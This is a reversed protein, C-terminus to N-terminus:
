WYYQLAKAFPSNPYNKKLQMFWAKRQSQPVDKGGCSSTGSPAYCMVARYLAYAKDDAPTKAGAILSQYVTMRSYVPGKFLTPTAGLVDGTPPTDLTEYDFGNALFFDALCLQAKSDKPARALRTAIDKLPKCDYDGATTRTFVGLPPASNDAWEPLSANGETSADAPVLALDKLFDATHGRSLEKYLLTYLASNREGQPNATDTAQRRLLAADAINSLLINRIQPNSVGSDAAFVKEVAHAREHHLAIALEVAGRQLPRQAGPLIATWHDSASKDKLAELAMGRLMQRSFELNTFSSQSAADPIAQVVAEPKHEYYFDYLALIYDFLAGDNSFSRRQQELSVRAIKPLCPEQDGHGCRLLALDVVAMLIPSKGYRAADAIFLDPAPQAFLLKNDVEDAYAIDETSTTPLAAAYTEALKDTRGGLWYVRRLLGRASAAYLGQPYAQLYANLAAEAADTVKPEAFKGATMSGYEDFLGVQQRNVEVRGLMYRATESLWPQDVGILTNFQATAADFDGDYFAQAGQLYAAFNKGLPSQVQTAAAAVGAAGGSASTCTPALKQRADILATKEADPVASGNVATVFAASGAEDSRCRSGEGEAYSSDQDTNGNTDDQAPAPQFQLGFTEWDMLPDPTPTVAPAVPADGRKDLLLLLLNARTDNGPQLMAMNDCGTFDPHDLTWLPTCGFDGSAQAPAQWLCGVLLLLLLAAPKRM